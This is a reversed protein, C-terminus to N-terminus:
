VIRAMAVPSADRVDQFYSNSSQHRGGGVELFEPIMESLLYSRQVVSSSFSDLSNKWRDPVSVTLIGDLTTGPYLPGVLISGLATGARILPSNAQLSNVPQKM